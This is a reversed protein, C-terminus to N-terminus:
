IHILSLTHQKQEIYNRVKDAVDIASQLGIRYVDIFIAQKGNFRTYVPTEEFGDNIVAVDELRIISGDNATKIAIAAFEDKRYAQGKAHILVDGGETKINGASVDVSSARVARSVEDISLNYQYLKDQSVEIAVEYNRVGSLELQTVGPINLLEDRVAEAMERTEQESYPSSVTVSMVERKRVLLGIIPKEAEAPFTNIADVRSKIDTLLERADYDPEIDISVRSRGESSVSSIREIGELDQVAEEIRISVGKEVDEPTSGRLTVNVNVRQMEMTPFVELPIGLFLTSIGALLLSIMLLNAAVDNRTFWAIM